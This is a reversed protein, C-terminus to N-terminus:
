FCNLRDCKECVVLPSNDKLDDGCNPCKIGSDINLEEKIIELILENVSKNQNFAELTIKAFIEREIPVLEKEGNDFVFELDIFESREM